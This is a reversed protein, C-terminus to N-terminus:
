SRLKRYLAVVSRTFDENEGKDPVAARVDEDSVEVLAGPTRLRCTYHLHWMDYDVVGILKYQERGLRLERSYKVNGGQYEGENIYLSSCLLILPRLIQMEYIRTCICGAPATLSDCILAETLEVPAPQPKLQVCKYDEEYELQCNRCEVSVQFGFFDGNWLEPTNALVTAFESADQMTGSMSIRDFWCSLSNLASQYAERTVSEGECLLRFVCGLEQDKPQLESHAMLLLVSNAYCINDEENPLGTFVKSMSPEEFDTNSELEQANYIGGEHFETYAAIQPESSLGTSLSWFSEPPWIGHEAKNELKEDDYKRCLEAINQSTEDDCKRRLEEINARIRAREEETGFSGKCVFKIFDDIFSKRHDSARCEERYHFEKKEKPQGKETKCYSWVHLYNKIGELKPEDEAENETFYVLLIAVSYIITMVEVVQSGLFRRMFEQDRSKFETLHYKDVIPCAVTQVNDDESPFTANPNQAAPAFATSMREAIEGNEMSAEVTAVIKRSMPTDRYKLIEKGDEKILTRALYQTRKIINNLLNHDCHICHLTKRRKPRYSSVNPPCKVM